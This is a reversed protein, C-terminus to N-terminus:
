SFFYVSDRILQIDLNGLPPPPPIHRTVEPYKEKLELYLRELLPESHLEIFQERIHRNMEPVDGAHTWFSDHVGAFALGSKHCAM